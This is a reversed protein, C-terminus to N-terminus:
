TFGSDVQSAFCCSGLTSMTLANIEVLLKLTVAAPAAIKISLLLELTVVALATIKVSLWLELTVV